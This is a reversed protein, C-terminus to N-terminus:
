QPTPSREGRILTSPVTTTTATVSPASAMVAWASTFVEDNADLERTDTLTREWWHALDWRMM